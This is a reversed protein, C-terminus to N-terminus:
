LSWDIVNSTTYWRGHKMKSVVYFKITCKDGTNFQCVFKDFDAKKMIFNVNRITQSGVELTISCFRDGDNLEAIIGKIENFTTQPWHDM